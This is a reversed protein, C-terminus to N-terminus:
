AQTHEKDPTEAAVTTEPREYLQMSDRVVHPHLINKVSIEYNDTGSSAVLIDGVDIMRQILNQRVQVTRISGLGIETSDHSFIGKALSIENGRVTFREKLRKVCMDFLVLLVFLLFAGWLLKPHTSPLSTKVFAYVLLVLAVGIALFHLYFSRWARRYSQEKM